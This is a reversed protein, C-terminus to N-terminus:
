QGGGGDTAPEAPEDPDTEAETPQSVGHEIGYKDDLRDRQWAYVASLVLAGLPTGIATMMFLTPTGAIRHADAAEPAIAAVTVPGFVIVVWAIFTAWVVKLHDRMFPTAPRFLNIETELYDATDAGASVGGDTSVDTPNNETTQNTNDSM